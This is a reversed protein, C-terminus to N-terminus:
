RCATPATSSSCATSWADLAARRQALRDSRDDGFVEAMADVPGLAPASSRRGLVAHPRAARARQAHCGPQGHLLWPGIPQTAVLSPDRHDRPAPKDGRPSSRRGAGLRDRRRGARRHAPAARDQRVLALADTRDGDSRAQGALLAPGPQRLRHRLRAPPQAACPRRMEARARRSAEGARGRLRRRDLVGAIRPRCGPRGAGPEHGALLLWRGGHPPGLADLPRKMAVRIQGIGSLLPQRCCRLDLGARDGAHILVGELRRRRCRATAPARTVPPRQAGAGALGSHGARRPRAPICDRTARLRQRAPAPVSSVPRWRPERMREDGGAPVRSVTSALRAAQEKMSEAAAASQEVLAANQQTMQDLQTSPRTSRASAPARSAAHRATIEGIMDTM